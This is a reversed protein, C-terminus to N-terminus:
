GLLAVVQVQVMAGLLVLAQVTLRRGSQGSRERGETGRIGPASRTTDTQQPRRRGEM